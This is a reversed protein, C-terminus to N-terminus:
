RGGSGGGQSGSRGQAGARKSGSRLQKSSNGEQGQQGRRGSRRRGSYRNHQLERRGIGLEKMYKPSRRGVMRSMNSGSTQGQRVNGLRYGGGGVVGAATARAQYNQAAGWGEDNSSM